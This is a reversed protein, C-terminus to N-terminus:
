VMIAQNRIASVSVPCISAVDSHDAADTDNPDPNTGDKIVVELVARLVEVGDSFAIQVSDFLTQTWADGGGGIESLCLSLYRGFAISQTLSRPTGDTACWKITGGTNTKVLTVGGSIFTPSGSTNMNAFDINQEGSSELKSTTSTDAGIENMDDIAKYKKTESETATKGNPTSDAYPQHGFVEYTNDLRGTPSPGADESVIWHDYRMTLDIGGKGATIEHQWLSFGQNVTNVAATTASFQSVGDHWLEIRKYNADGVKINLEIDFRHNVPFAGDITVSTGGTAILSYSPSGWGGSIKWLRWRLDGAGIDAIGVAYTTPSGSSSLATVFLSWAGGGAFSKIGFRGGFYVKVTSGNLTVLNGQWSADNDVQWGFFGGGIPAIVDGLDGSQRVWAVRNSAIGSGLPGLEGGAHILVGM